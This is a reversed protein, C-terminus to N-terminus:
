EADKILQLLVETVANIVQEPSDVIVDGIGSHPMDSSVVFKGDSRQEVHAYEWQGASENLAGFVLNDSTFGDKISLEMEDISCAGEGVVSLLKQNLKEQMKFLNILKILEM